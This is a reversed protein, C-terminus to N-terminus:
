GGRLQWSKGDLFVPCIAFGGTFFAMEWGFYKEQLFRLILDHSDAAVLSQVVELAIIQNPNAHFGIGDAAM